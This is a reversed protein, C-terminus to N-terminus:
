HNKYYKKFIYHSPLTSKIVKQIKNDQIYYATPVVEALVNLTDLPVKIIPVNITFNEFFVEEAIENEGVILVTKDVTNTNVYQKLNEISNLCHPCTYTFCFILYTSDKSANLYNILKTESITKNLYIDQKRNFNLNIPTRFTYGSLFISISMMTLVIVKKSKKIKTDKKLPYKRWIIVAIIILIFNRVYTIWPPLISLKLSGFCGCNTIGHVINAYSFAFTFLLLIILSYFTNTKPNVLLIMQIGLFIELLIIIPALISLNEFGYQIILNSFGTVDVVKGFGSFLFVAGLIITCLDLAKKNYM